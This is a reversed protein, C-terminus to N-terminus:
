KRDLLSESWTAGVRRLMRLDKRPMPRIGDRCKPCMAGSSTVHLRGNCSECIAPSVVRKTLTFVKKVIEGFGHAAGIRMHKRKAANEKGSPVAMAGGSDQVSLLFRLTAAGMPPLPNGALSGREIAEIDFQSM